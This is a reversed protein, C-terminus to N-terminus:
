FRYGVFINVYITWTMMEFEEMGYSFSDGTVSIGTYFLESSYGLSCKFNVKLSVGNRVERESSVTYRAHSLGAGILMAGSLYFDRHVFTGGWGPAVTTAYFLGGSFDSENKFYVAYSPPILSFDNSLNLYSQSVSILFSSASRNQKETQKVAANFSFSDSHIYYLNLGAAVMNMGPEQPYPDGESWGPYFDKPSELFFGKYDQIGADFGFRKFFANVKLAKARTRGFDGEDGSAFPLDTYLSIMLNRYTLGLGGILNVNPVYTIDSLGEKKNVFTLLLLPVELFPRVSWNEFAQVDPIEPEPEPDLITQAEEAAMIFVPCVM